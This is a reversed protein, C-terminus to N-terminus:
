SKNFSSTLTDIIFRLNCQNNEVCVIQWIPLSWQFPIEMIFQKSQEQRPEGGCGSPQLKLHYIGPEKCKTCGHIEESLTERELQQEVRQVAGVRLTLEFGEERWPWLLLMPSSRGGEGQQHRDKGGM